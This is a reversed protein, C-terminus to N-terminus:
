PADSVAEPALVDRRLLDLAQLTLLNRLTGGYTEQPGTFDCFAGVKHSLHTSDPGIGLNPLDQAARWLNILPVGYQEALEVLALNMELAYDYHVVPQDPLVVNTTLLPIVGMELSLKIVSDMAAAYTEPDGHRADMLGLLIVAVAPRKIRYECALPGENRQCDGPDAWLKDLTAPASLGPKAAVSFAVFSNAFGARPSTASFFDVTEQLDAYAGLQCFNGDMGIAQLFDGNTTNSDGVKTFVDARNGLGQGQVFIDQQEDTGFNYLVPVAMLQEEWETIDQGKTTLSAVFLLAMGLTALKRGIMGM